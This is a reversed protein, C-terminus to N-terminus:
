VLLVEEEEVEERERMKEEYVWAMPMLVDGVCDWISDKSSQVPEKGRYSLPCLLKFHPRTLGCCMKGSHTLANRSTISIHIKEKCPLRLKCKDVFKGCCKELTNSQLSKFITCFLNTFFEM